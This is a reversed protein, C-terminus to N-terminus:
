KSTVASPEIIGVAPAMAAGMNNPDAVGYDHIAGATAAIIAVGHPATGVVCSGAGTVTWQATPTRVCGYELPFRYQREAACFHSSTACVVNRAAGGEVFVAATLLAQGMTACASYQGLFPLGFDRLGFGSGVCQNLLDGALAVDIEDASIGSHAIARSIVDAQLSSEAAEYTEQGNYSDYIIRDFFNGLPGESEKKGAAAAYGRIVPPKEFLITKGIKKM